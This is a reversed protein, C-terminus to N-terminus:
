TIILAYAFCSFTCTTLIGKTANVIENNDKSEMAVLLLKEEKVLFPRFQVQVDSSPLTLEYRPTEITPLAM